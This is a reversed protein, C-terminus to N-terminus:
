ARLGALATDFTARTVGAQQALPWLSQLFAQFGASPPPMGAVENAQAFCSPRACPQIAGALLLGVGLGCPHIRTKRDEAHAPAFGLRPLLRFSAQREELPKKAAFGIM